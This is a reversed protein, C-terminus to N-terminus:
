GATPKPRTRRMRRALVVGAVPGAILIAVTVIGVVPNERFVESISAEYGDEIGSFIVVNVAVIAGAIGGVIGGVVLDILLARTTPRM